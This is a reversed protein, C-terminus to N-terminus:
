WSVVWHSWVGAPTQGKRLRVGCSETRNELEHESPCILVSTFSQYLPPYELCFIKTQFPFLTLYEVLCQNVSFSDPYPDDATPKTDWLIFDSLDTCVTWSDSMSLLPAEIKITKTKTVKEIFVKLPDCDFLLNLKFIESESQSTKFASFCLCVRRYM